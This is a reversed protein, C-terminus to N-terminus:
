GVWLPLIEESDVEHWHITRLKHQCMENKYLYRVSLNIMFAGTRFFMTPTENLDNKNWNKERIQILRMPYESNSNEFKQAGDM